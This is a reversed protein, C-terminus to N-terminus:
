KEYLRVALTVLDATLVDFEASPQEQLLELELVADKKRFVVVRRLLGKQTYAYSVLERKVDIVSPVRTVRVDPDNEQVKSRLSLAALLQAPENRLQQQTADDMQLERLVMTGSFERNVLWLKVQPLKAKNTIDAWGDPLFPRAAVSPIRKLPPSFRPEPITTGCSALLLAAIVTFLLLPISPGYVPRGPQEM